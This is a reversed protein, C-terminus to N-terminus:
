SKEKEDILQKIAALDDKSLEGSKILYNALEGFSGSFLKAVLSHTEADTAKQRSLTPTYFNVMGLKKRTLFGKDVLINMLTQVTTYAKEGNKYLYNHVDRVSVPPELDWIGLMLDWEAEAIKKPKKPRAM